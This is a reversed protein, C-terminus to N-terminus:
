VQLDLQDLQLAQECLRLVLRTELAWERDCQIARHEGTQLCDEVFQVAHSTHGRTFFPVYM